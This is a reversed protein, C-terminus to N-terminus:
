LKICYLVVSSKPRTEDGGTDDTTYSHQHPNPSIAGVYGIGSVVNALLLTDQVPSSTVATASATAQISQLEGGGVDTTGTHNHARIQDEQSLGVGIGADAGRLFRSRADFTPMRKNADFDAQASAGRTTAVGSSDQIPLEANSFETWLLTYLNLTDANARTTAGSAASGITGGIEAIWGAPATKRRFGGVAGTPVTALAALFSQVQGLSVADGSNVADGINIPRFSNFNLNGSMPAVGSRLLVQSLMSAIDELPPNHQSPLITQGTTALYGPVLSANGNSDYPM